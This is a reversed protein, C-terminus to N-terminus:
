YIWDTKWLNHGKMWTILHVLIFNNMIKRLLKIDKRNTSISWKKMRLIPIKQQGGIKEQDTVVPKNNKLLRRLLSYIKRNWQNRSKYKNNGEKQKRHTQTTAGKLQSSVGSIKFKEEKSIYAYLCVESINHTWNWVVLIFHVTCCLFYIKKPKVTHIFTVNRSYQLRNLMCCCQPNFFVLPCLKILFYKVALFTSIILSFISNSLHCRYVQENCPQRLGWNTSFCLIQSTCHFLACYFRLTGTYLM